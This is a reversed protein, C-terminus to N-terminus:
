GRDLGALARRMTAGNAIATIKNAYSPDTAYGGRQLASAFRHVDEGTGRAEAYRSKGLLRAYDAFSDAASAYARFSDRVNQRVGNVYEHTGSSVKAGNWGTAKIGFLNHSTVNRDQGVLRRGWGTELAAQAILAKASVGLQEATKKAHPWLSKVFAEPSSCDLPTTPGCNEDAAARSASPVVPAAAPAFAPMSVGSSSPALHLGQSLPMGPSGLPQAMAFGASPRALPLSGAVPAQMAPAASRELQRVVMPAIGLGRGKTLEKALQQDYMERYTTNNGSLPDGGTTARMSKILMHAFQTELERAAKEIAPRPTETSRELPLSQLAPLRM